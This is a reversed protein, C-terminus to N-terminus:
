VAEKAKSNKVALNSAALPTSSNSWKVELERVNIQKANYGDVTSDM